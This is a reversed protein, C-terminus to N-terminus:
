SSVGAGGVLAGVVFVGADELCQELFWAVFETDIAAFFTCGRGGSAYICDWTCQADKHIDMLLMLHM